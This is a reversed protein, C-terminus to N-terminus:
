TFFNITWGSHSRQHDPASFRSSENERDEERCVWHCHPQGARHLSGLCKWWFFYTQLCICGQVRLIYILLHLPFYSNQLFIASLLVYWLPTLVFNHQFFNWFVRFSCSVKTTCLDLWHRLWANYIGNDQKEKPHKNANFSAWCRTSSLMAWKLGKVQIADSWFLHTGSHGTYPMRPNTRNPKVCQNPSVLPIQLLHCPFFQM